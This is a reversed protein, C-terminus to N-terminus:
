EKFIKYKCTLAANIITCLILAAQRSKSSTKTMTKMAIM